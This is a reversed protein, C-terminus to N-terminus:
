LKEMIPPPFIPDESGHIILTPVKVQRPVSQIMRFSNKIALLHNTLSEPHRLRELFKQHIQRYLAEEFSVSNGNLISWCAIREELQEEKTHPPNKLFKHMWDLYIEKPPSLTLDAPYLEDYALSSPRLDCSAAILTLTEIRSPYHVSILEAIPGGMSFGCVHAKDVELVDLLGVADGAMDLLTYPQKSFDFCTSWGSDRHDYRIVYFGKKALQECFETPWLIGQCLGGMILLLARDKKEGFSEYWIDIGNAKAIQGSAFSPVHLFISAALYLMFALPYRM